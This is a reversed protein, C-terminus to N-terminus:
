NSGIKGYDDEAIRKSLKKDYGATREPIEPSQGM